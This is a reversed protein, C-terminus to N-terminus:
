GGRGTGDPSSLAEVPPLLDLPDWAVNDRWVEFHLNPGTTRGTQGVTAIVQGRRVRQGVRVGNRANHAYVTAFGQRHRLIIVNGYGRLTDSVVVEGDAAARVPTGEPVSIDIGGHFGGGRAGFLSSVTGGSVPWDLAITAGPRQGPRATKRPTIGGAALPRRAGPIFLRQGVRIRDADALRNAAVIEEVSLGYAKGIRYVTEGPAVVHHVGGARRASCGAAGLALLLATAGAALRSSPGSGRM